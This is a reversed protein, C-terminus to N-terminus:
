YFQRGDKLFKYENCEITEKISEDSLLYNYEDDLYKLMERLKDKLFETATDEILKLDEITVKQNLDEEDYDDIIFNGNDDINYYYDFDKFNSLSLLIKNDIPLIKNLFLNLNDVDLKNFSIERRYLDFNLSEFSLGYEKFEEKFNEFIFEYWDYNTNIERFNNLVKEQIEPKLEEFSYVNIKKTEM